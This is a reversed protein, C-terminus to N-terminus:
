SLILPLFKPLPLSIVPHTTRHVRAVPTISMCLLVPFLFGSSRPRPGSSSISVGPHHGPAYLPAIAQVSVTIFPPNLPPNAHHLGLPPLSFLPVPLTGALSLQRRQMERFSRSYHIYTQLDVHISDPCVFPKPSAYTHCEPKPSCLHPVRAQPLM